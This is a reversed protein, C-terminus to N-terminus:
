RIDMFTLQGYPYQGNASVATLSHPHLPFIGKKDPQLLLDLTTGSPLPFTDKPPLATEPVNNRALPEVHFGHFHISHRMRGLNGLRLLIREGVDGVVRTDPDGASAPFANGNLVFYNPEYPEQAGDIGTAMALNRRDDADEYLLVYEKDFSPGGSWLEQAGNLPRSVLTGALGSVDPAHASAGTGTAWPSRAHGLLYTGARPMAFEFAATVGPAIMPGDQVGLIAPQIAIPLQNQVRVEVTGHETAEFYPLAGRSASGGAAQFRFFPLLTSQFTTTMPLAVLDWTAIAASRRTGRSRFGPGRLLGPATAAHALSPAAVSAAALGALFGRRTTPSPTKPSGTM